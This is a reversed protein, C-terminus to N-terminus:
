LEQEQKITMESVYDSKLVQIGTAPTFVFEDTCQSTMDALMSSMGQQNPDQPDPLHQNTIRLTSKMVATKKDPSITIAHIEQAITAGQSSDYGDRANKLLSQKDVNMPMELPEGQLPHVITLIRAQYNEHTTKDIFDRYEDFPRTHLTEGQKVYARISEETLGTQKQAWAVDPLLLCLAALLPAFKLFPKRFM